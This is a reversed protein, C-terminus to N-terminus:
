FHNNPPISSKSKHSNQTAHFDLTEIKLLQRVIISMDFYNLSDLIEIQVYVYENPTNLVKPKTLSCSCIIMTWDYISSNFM